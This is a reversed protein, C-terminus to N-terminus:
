EGLHYCLDKLLRDTPCGRVALVCSVGVVFDPAVIRYALPITAVSYGGGGFDAGTPLQNNLVRKCEACAGVLVQMMQRLATSSGATALSGAVANTALRIMASGAAASGPLIKSKLKVRGMMTASNKNRM